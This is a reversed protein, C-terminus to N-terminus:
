QIILRKKELVYDSTRVQMLYFGRPLGLDLTFATHEQVVEAFVKKGALDFVDVRVVEANGADIHVLGFSPNPYILLKEVAQRMGQRTNELIRAGSGGRIEVHSWTFEGIYHIYYKGDIPDPLDDAWRNTFDEGNVTVKNANWSNIFDINDSTEWCYEGAGDFSLPLSIEVPNECSSGTNIGSQYINVTRSIQGGSVTVTGSRDSTSTNGLISLVIDGNNMGETASVSLWDLSETVAWAMDSTISITGMTEASSFLFSSPTVELFVVTEPARQNVVVSRVLSGGSILVTGSRLANGENELVSLVLEANGNGSQPAITIWSVNSQVTWDLNSTLMLSRSGAAAAFSISSTSVVLEEQPGVTGGNPIEDALYPVLKNMKWDVINLWQTDLLGGTDGSNPNWCWFTWSYDNGVYDLFNDFWVEDVGGQDRIGFEGVFLPAENQTYLYGFYEEWIGPMNSPFSPDEFWPQQFVTPGYEHPSYVLKSPNSLTIPYSAAGKLNGGWWYTAGNYNEIGEVMILVNPNVELIANGCREAAKNWDTAPNSNGWTARDHPENNLDMAVVADFNQYRDALFVWDAIWQSESVEDTYWLDENLYGDTARSHNDLIIKMDHDQCWQVLIDMVEIPRTKTAVEQNMPNGTYPDAGYSNVDFTANDDLMANCWPIRISNFGQDKIQQLMSELDRAWLGHPILNSTEFGFWNVGTLRVESGSADVLGNGQVSLYNQAMTKTSFTAVVLGIVLSMRFLFGIYPFCLASKVVLCVDNKKMGLLTNIM